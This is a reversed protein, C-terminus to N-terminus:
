DTRALQVIIGEIAKEAARESLLAGWYGREPLAGGYWCGPVHKLTEIVSGCGFFSLKGPM